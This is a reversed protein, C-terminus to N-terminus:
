YGIVFVYIGIGLYWYMDQHREPGPPSISGKIHSYDMGELIGCHHPRGRFRTMGEVKGMVAFDPPSLLVAPLLPDGEEREHGLGQSAPMLTCFSLDPFQPACKSPVSALQLTFSNRVEPPSKADEELPSISCNQSVPNGVEGM